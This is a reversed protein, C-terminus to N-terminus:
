RGVAGQAEAKGSSTVNSRRPTDIDCGPPAKQQQRRDDLHEARPRRNTTTREGGSPVSGGKVSV